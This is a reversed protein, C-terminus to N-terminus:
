YWKNRIIYCLLFPLIRLSSVSTQCPFKSEPQWLTRMGMHQVAGDWGRVVFSFHYFPKKGRPTRLLALTHKHHTHFPKSVVYCTMVPSDDYWVLCCGKQLDSVSPCVVHPPLFVKIKRCMFDQLRAHQKGKRPRWGKQHLPLSVVCLFFFFLVSRLFFLNPTPLHPPLVCTAEQWQLLPAVQTVCAFGQCQELASCLSVWRQTHLWVPPINVSSLMQIRFAHAKLCVMSEALVPLM